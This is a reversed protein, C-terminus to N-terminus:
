KRKIPYLTARYIFRVVVSYIVLITTIHLILWKLTFLNMEGAIGRYADDLNHYAGGFYLLTPFILPFSLLCLLVLRKSHQTYTRRM